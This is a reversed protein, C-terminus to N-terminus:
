TVCLRGHQPWPLQVECGAAHPASMVPLLLLLLLPATVPLCCSCPGACVGALEDSSLYDEKVVVQSCMGEGRLLETYAHLGPHPRPHTSLRQRTM